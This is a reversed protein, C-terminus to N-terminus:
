KVVTTATVLDIDPDVDAITATWTITGKTTPIYDPFDFKTTGKGNYDYVNLRWNYIVVGDQEGVVTALAQGLV